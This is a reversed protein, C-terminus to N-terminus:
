RSRFSEVPINGRCGSHPGSIVMIDHTAFGASTVIAKTRSTPMCAVLPILLAPNSRHVNANILRLGEDHAKKTKWVIVTDASGLSRLEGELASALNPSLFLLGALILSISKRM